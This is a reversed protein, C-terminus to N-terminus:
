TTVYSSKKGKCREYEGPRIMLSDRDAEYGIDCECVYSGATNFCIHDEGCYATANECENVDSIFYLLVHIDVASCM